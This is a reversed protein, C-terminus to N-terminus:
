SFMRDIDRPDFYAGEEAVFGCEYNRKYGQPSLRQREGLLFEESIRGGASHVTERIREWQPEQHWAKDWWSGNIFGGYSLCLISGRTAALMPPIDEYVSDPFWCAEDIILMKASYGVIAGSSKGPLAIVRSGNPLEELTVADRVSGLQGRDEQQIEGLLLNDLDTAPIPQYDVGVVKMPNMLCLRFWKVKRIFESTQRQTRAIVLIDSRPYILAAGLALAASATTKGIQRSCNVLLKFQRTVRDLFSLLRCQWPDPRIGARRLIAEPFLLIMENLSLEMGSTFRNMAALRNMSWCGFSQKLQQENLLKQAPPVTTSSSM